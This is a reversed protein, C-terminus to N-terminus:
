LLISAEEFFDTSKAIDAQLVEHCLATFKDADINNNAIIFCYNGMYRLTNRTLLNELTNADLETGNARCTDALADMTWNVFEVLASLQDAPIRRTNWSQQMSSILDLVGFSEM